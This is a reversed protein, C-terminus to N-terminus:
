LHLHLRAVFIDASLGSSCSVGDAATTTSRTTNEHFAYSYLYDMHRDKELTAM